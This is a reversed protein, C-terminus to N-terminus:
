EDNLGLLDARVYQQVLPHLYYRPDDNVTRPEIREILSLRRLVDRAFEMRIVEDRKTVNAGRLLRRMTLASKPAAARRSLEVLIRGADRDLTSDAVRAAERVRQWSWEIVGRYFLVYEHDAYPDLRTLRSLINNLKDETLQRVVLSVALPVGGTAEFLAGHEKDGMAAVSPIDEGLGEILERCAQPRLGMLPRPAVRRDTYGERSTLILFSQTGEVLQSVSEVLEHQPEASTELSDLVVVYKHIALGGAVDDFTPAVRFEKALAAICSQLSIRRDADAAGFRRPSSTLVLYDDVIGSSRADTAVVSALASKGVGGIGHYGVIRGRDGRSLHRLAWDREEEIGVLRHSGTEPSASLITAARDRPPEDNVNMTMLVDLFRAAAASWTYSQLGSKLLQAITYGDAPNQYLGLIAESVNNVDRDTFARLASHDHTGQIDVGKVFSEGVETAIFRHLGTRRNVILPVEAAVADWGALGFGEHWSLMLAMSAEDLYTFITDRDTTYPVAAVNVSRAAYTSAVSALRASDRDSEVGIAYLKPETIFPERAAELTRVSKGFSAAVLEANKLRDHHEDLRGLTIAVFRQPRNKTVRPNYLGPILEHVHRRALDAATDRLHPGVAFLTAEPSSFIERQRRHKLLASEMEGTTYAHYDGYSMHHILAARANTSRAADLAFPGTIVDHGVWVTEGRALQTLRDRQSTTLESMAPMREGSDDLPILNVNSAKAHEIDREDAALVVCHVSSSGRRTRGVAACLDYNFVNIGGHKSGWATAIFVINVICRVRRSWQQLIARNM